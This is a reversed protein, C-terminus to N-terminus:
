SRPKGFRKHETFSGFEARAVVGNCLYFGDTEACVVHGDDGIKWKYNKAWEWDIRCVKTTKDSGELPLTMEDNDSKKKVRKDREDKMECFQKYDLENDVKKM